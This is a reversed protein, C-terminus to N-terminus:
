NDYSGVFTSVDHDSFALIIVLTNYAQDFVEYYAIAKFFVHELHYVGINLLQNFPADVFMLVCVHGLHRGVVPHYVMGELNFTFVLHILMKLCFNYWLVIHVVEINWYMLNVRFTKVLFWLIILVMHCKPRLSKLLVVVMEDLTSM